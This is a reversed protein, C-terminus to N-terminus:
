EFVLEGFSNPQHFDPHPTDIPNWSLYHSQKQKDGCKYFNAYVVKGSVSQIASKFYASVPIRLALEWTTIGPLEAFPLRGNSSWRDISKLTDLSAHERNSRSEGCGILLTGICNCEMNYYIGGKEFQSFFECCSDEWVRGNDEANVARTNEETVHYMIYITDGSHAIRFFVTPHYPHDPWNVTDIPQWKINEHDFIVPIEAATQCIQSLKPVLLRKM